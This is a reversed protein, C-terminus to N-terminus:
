LHKVFWIVICILSLITLTWERRLDVSGNLKYLNSMHMLYCFVVIILPLWGLPTIYCAAATGIIYLSITEFINRNRINKITKRRRDREEQMKREEQKQHEREKWNTSAFDTVNKVAKANGIFKGAKITIHILEKLAM